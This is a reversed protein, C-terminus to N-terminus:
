GNGLKISRQASASNITVKPMRLILFVKFLKRPVFRFLILDDILIELPFTWTVVSRGQYCVGTQIDNSEILTMSKNQSEHIIFIGDM